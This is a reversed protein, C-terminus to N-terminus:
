ARESRDYRVWQRFTESPPRTASRSIGRLPLSAMRDTIVRHSEGGDGGGFVDFLAGGPRLALHVRRLRPLATCSTDLLRLRVTLPLGAAVGTAGAISTRIDSRVIGSLALANPGNTGNGPYPGQTEEPHRWLQRRGRPRQLQVGHRWGHRERGCGLATASLYAMWELVRRRNVRATLVELDHSLGAHHDSESEHSM